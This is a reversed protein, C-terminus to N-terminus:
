KRGAKLYLYKNISDVTLNEPTTLISDIGHARLEKVILKKEYSFKQAITKIYIDEVDESRTRSLTDLETNQFFVVILTHYKAIQQLYPLERRLSIISEFNTYIFLLSRKKITHRIQFFLKEYHAESFDTEQGYLSELVRHMQRRVNSAPLVSVINANFSLLGPNDDKNFAAGLMVLASNISHDLLSMGNFPMEMVRGTNIVAYVDQSKEDQYQNVMVSSRKATAKWNISRYDDGTVFERIQDFEYNHGLKRVAKLGPMQLHDSIALFAYKKVQMYSPYVAVEVPQGLRYRRQVLQLPSSAFVNMYGFGYIGRKTPRLHYQLSQPQNAKCEIEFAIDRAQFQAPVEDILSLHVTFPYHSQLHIYITNDDGNSLRTGVDRTATIGGRFRYLIIIELVSAGVVAICLIEGAFIFWPVFAGTVFLLVVVALAYFLRPRLYISKLLHMM